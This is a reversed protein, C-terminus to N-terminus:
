EKLHINLKKKRLLLVFSFIDPRSILQYLIKEAEAYYKHTVIKSLSIGASKKYIFISKTKHQANAYPVADNCTKIILWSCDICDVRRDQNCVLPVNGM